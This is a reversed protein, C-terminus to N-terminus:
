KALLTLLPVDDRSLNSQTLTGSLVSFSNIRPQLINRVLETKEKKKIESQKIMTIQRKM